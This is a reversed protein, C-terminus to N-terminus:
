LKFHKRIVKEVDSCFNNRDFILNGKQASEGLRLTTYVTVNMGSPIPIM